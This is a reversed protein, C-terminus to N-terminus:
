GFIEAMDRFVLYDGDAEEFGFDMWYRHLVAKSAVHEPTGEEPGGDTLVPSALLVVMAASRGITGIIAKLAAYGLDNGRFKPDIWLSSLYLLDGGIGMEELLDPRKITLMEAVNAVEQNVADLTLFLDILGADPVVYVDAYGVEVGEGDSDEDDWVRGTLKVKWFMPYDDPDHDTGPIGRYECSYALNLYEPDITPM